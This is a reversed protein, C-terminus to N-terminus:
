AQPRSSVLFSGSVATYTIFLSTSVNTSSCRNLTFVASLSLPRSAVTRVTMGVLQEKLELLDLGARRLPCAGRARSGDNRESDVVM